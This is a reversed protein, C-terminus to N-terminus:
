QFTANISIYHVGGLSKTTNFAYDIVGSFDESKYHFGAGIGFGLQDQNFAYGARLSAMDNWIYEAGLNYQEPGDSHTSFDFDMNLKQNEITGQLVDTAVGIRFILPLPYSGTNLSGSLSDRVANIAGNNSIFDLSNGSYNRDQGINTLDMAIRMHYFDTLYRSGADFAFGDASMDKISSRLYKATAGFSFRDTLAGAITAALSLDNANYSGANADQQITSYALSGYDVLTLAIGARYKDSVPLTVGVFNETVNAFWLTTSAAVNVGPLNAIGAPNWYLASVDDALASYAGAMGAARAGIGMKTFVSGAAGVNTFNAATTSTTSGGQQAFTVGVAAFLFALVLTARVALFRNRHEKMMALTLKVQSFVVRDM